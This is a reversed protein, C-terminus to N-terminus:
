FHPKSKPPGGLVFGTPGPRGIVGINKHIRRGTAKCSCCKMHDKYYGQNLKGKNKIEYYPIWGGGNCKSCENM